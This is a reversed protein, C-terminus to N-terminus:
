NGRLKIEKRHTENQKMIKASKANCEWENTKDRERQTEKDRTRKM